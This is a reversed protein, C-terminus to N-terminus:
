RKRARREVRANVPPANAAILKSLAQCVVDATTFVKRLQAVWADWGADSELAHASAADLALLEDRLPEVAENTQATVARVQAPQVIGRVAADVALAEIRASLAEGRLAALIVDTTAGVARTRADLLPQFIAAHAAEASADGRAGLSRLSRAFEPLQRSDGM